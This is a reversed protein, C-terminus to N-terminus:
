HRLIQFLVGDWQWEQGKICSKSDVTFKETVRKVEGSLVENVKIKNLLKKSAGAHDHDAHSIILRDLRAIERNRFFPLLVQDAMNFRDSFANGTDYVLTHNKTQVVVSLGQGVDLVNLSFQGHGMSRM